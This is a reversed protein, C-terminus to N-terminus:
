LFDGFSLLSKNLKLKKLPKSGSTSAVEESSLKKDGLKELKESFVDEDVKGFDGSDFIGEWANQEEISCQTGPDESTWTLKSRLEKEHVSLKDRSSWLYPLDVERFPMTEPISVDRLIIEGNQQAENFVHYYKYCAQQVDPDHSMTVIKDLVEDPLSNEVPDITWFISGKSQYREQIHTMWLKHDVAISGKVRVSPRKDSQIGINVYQPKEFLPIPRSEISYLMQQIMQASLSFTPRLGTGGLQIPLWTRMALGISLPGAVDQSCELLEKWHRDPAKAGGSLVSVLKGPHVTMVRKITHGDYHFLASNITMYEYSLPSKSMEPVGNLSEVSEKWKKEIGYGGILATDDGNFGGKCWNKVYDIFKKQHVIKVAEDLDGHANMIIALSCACLIPFSADSGMNFGGKQVIRHDPNTCISRCGSHCIPVSGLKPDRKYYHADYTYSRLLLEDDVDLQFQEVLEDCCIEAVLRHLLDTASALDGSVFQPIEGSEPDDLEQLWPMVDQIWEEIERGFVSSKFKRIRKGMIQNFAHFKDCLAGAITVTRFKGGTYIIKPIVAKPDHFPEDDSLYQFARKGGELSSTEICSKPSVLPTQKDWSFEKPKKCLHRFLRKFFTRFNSPINPNNPPTTMRVLYDELSPPDLPNGPAYVKKGM